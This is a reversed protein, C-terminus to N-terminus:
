RIFNREIETKSMKPFGHYLLWAKIHKLTTNSYTGFIEIETKELRAVITNYSQLYEVGDCWIIHAKKYFSKQIGMPNLEFKIM